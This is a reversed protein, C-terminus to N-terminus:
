AADSGAPSVVVPAPFFRRYSVALALSTVPLAWVLGIVTVAALTLGIGLVLLLGACRFWQPHVTRQSTKLAEVARLRRDVALPLAYMLAVSLYIGPLLLLSFGIITAITLLVGLLALELVSVGHTLADGARIEHGDVRLLALRMVGALFPYIVAATVLQAVLGALVSGSPAIGFVAGLLAQLLWTGVFLAAYVLLFAGKCGQSLTWADAIVEGISFRPDAVGVVRPGAEPPPPPAYPNPTNM